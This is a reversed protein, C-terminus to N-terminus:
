IKEGSAAYLGLSHWGPVATTIEITHEGRRANAPVAGPSGNAAALPPVEAIPADHATVTELGGAFRPGRAAVRVPKRRSPALDLRRLGKLVRGVEARFRPESDPVAQLTLRIAALACILDKPESVRGAEILELATAANVFPSVEGGAAYGTP